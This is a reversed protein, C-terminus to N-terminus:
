RSQSSGATQEVDFPLLRERGGLALERLLRVQHGGWPLRQDGRPGGGAAVVLHDVDEERRADGRGLARVVTLVLFGVDADLPHRQVIRHLGNEAAAHM